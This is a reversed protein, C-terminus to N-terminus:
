SSFLQVVLARHDAGAITVTVASRADLGVDRVLVHDIAALPVPTRGQPFTPQFGAGAQDAADVYGLSEVDRFIRHDRTTNLDGLVVVPGSVIALMDRLRTTDVDWQDHHLPGPAAPHAVLVTLSGTPLTIDAQVTNSVLGPRLRADTLPRTSWLGTGTIGAQPHASSYPFVEDLGADHLREEADPTLEEVALVDVGQARVMEVIASAGAEGLTMNVTAVTLAPETASLSADARYLPLLWWVGLLVVVLSGAILGRTKTALGILLAVAAAATTWPLVAVAYALPGQEWGTLRAVAAVAAGLLLVFGVVLLSARVVSRWKSRRRGVPTPGQQKLEAKPVRQTGQGDGTV